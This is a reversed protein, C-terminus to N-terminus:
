KEVQSTLLRNIQETLKEDDSPRAATNLFIEGNKDVLAYRPIAGVDGGLVKWMDIILENNARVHYGELENYKMSQRWRDEWQPKDISIYLLQITQNEIFPKVVNKYRFDAVCPHCWTAWIDILLNKGQFQELLDQFSTYNKKIVIAKDYKEGGKHISTELKELYPEFHKFHASEPYQRELEYVADLLAPSYFLENTLYRQLNSLRYALVTKEDNFLLSDGGVLEEIVTEDLTIKNTPFEYDQYSEMAYVLQHIFMNYDESNPTPFLVTKMESVFTGMLYEWQINYIDLSVTSDEMMKTVQEMRKLFMGNLFINAYFAYVENTLFQRIESEKGTSKTNELDIQINLRDIQDVEIRVLSDIISMVKQPTKAQYILWSYRNGNVTNPHITIRTNTNYFNNIEQFDGTISITAQQKISDLLYFRDTGDGSHGGYSNPFHVKDQDIELFIKSKEYCFFRYSMRNFFVIVTGYGKNEFEIKFTGNPYPQVEEWFTTVIGELTTYYGVISKEDYNHIKGKIVVKGLSIISTFLLVFLIKYKM